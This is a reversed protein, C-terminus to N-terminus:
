CQCKDFKKLAEYRRQYLLRLQSDYNDALEDVGMYDLVEKMSIDYLFHYTLLDQYITCSVERNKTPLDAIREIVDKLVTEEALAENTLLNLRNEKAIKKSILMGTKDFRNQSKPMDTLHVSGPSSLKSNLVDIESQLNRIERVRSQQDYLRDTSVKSM